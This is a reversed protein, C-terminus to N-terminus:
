LDGMAGPGDHRHLALGYPLNGNTNKEHGNIILINKDINM